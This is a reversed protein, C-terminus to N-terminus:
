HNTRKNGRKLVCRIYLGGLYAGCCFLVICSAILIPVHLIRWSAEPIFLIKILHDADVFVSIWGCYFGAVLPGRVDMTKRTADGM